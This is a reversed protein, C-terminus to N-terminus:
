KPRFHGAGIRKPKRTATWQGAALGAVKMRGHASDGDIWGVITAPGHGQLDPFKWEADFTLDVYGDRWTGAVLRSQGLDGSWTGKVKSGERQLQLTGHFTGGDSSFTVQWTGAADSGNRVLSPTSNTVRVDSFYAEEYPYPWLAVGGRSDQGLLPDVILSPEASGNLYLKATRGKVEIRVRTWTELKLPAYTEYVWPWGYRLTYWDFDPISVYQLSHNRMAQNDSTSNGPRLYFLEYRSADPRARFAIGVFGPMRFPAKAVRLAINADITGDQFGDTGRLLAFGDKKSDNTLRVCKRGHYEVADTKVNVPVLNHTDQLPFTQGRVQAPIAAALLTALIIPIRSGPAVRSKNRACGLSFEAWARQAHSQWGRWYQVTTSKMAGQKGADM